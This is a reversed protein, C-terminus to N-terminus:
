SPSPESVETVVEFPQMRMSVFLTHGTRKTHEYAWQWPGFSTESEPSWMDCSACVAEYEPEGPEESQVGRTTARLAWSTLRLAM